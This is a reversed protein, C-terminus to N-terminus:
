SQSSLLMSIVAIHNLVCNYFVSVLMSYYVDSLRTFVKRLNKYHMDIFMGTSENGFTNNGLSM